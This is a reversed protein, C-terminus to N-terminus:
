VRCLLSSHGYFVGRRNGRSWSGEFRGKRSRVDEPRQRGFHGLVDEVGARGLQGVGLHVQELGLDNSRAGKVPEYKFCGAREIKAEDLWDLLMDFDEDTEMDESREVLDLVNRPCVKYCRGCGICKRPDLATVFEPVWESGGRTLGTIRSM